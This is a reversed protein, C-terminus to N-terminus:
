CLNHRDTVQQLSQGDANVIFLQPTGGEAKGGFLIQKGDASWAPFLSGLQDNGLLDRQESGDANMVYLRFQGTRNSTFALQKGDPSWSPDADIEKHNTLNREDTGDPKIT